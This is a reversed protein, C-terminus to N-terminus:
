LVIVESSQRFESAQQASADAEGGPEPLSSRIRTPLHVSAQQVSADAEGGPEPLSSRIRTPLHVPSVESSHRLENAQLANSEPLYTCFVRQNISSSASEMDRPHRPAVYRTTLFRRVSACMMLIVLIIVLLTVVAALLGTTVRWMQFPDAKGGDGQDDPAGEAGCSQSGLCTTFVSPLSAANVVRSDSAPVSSSGVPHQRSTMVESEASANSPENTSTALAVSAIISNNNSVPQISNLQQNQQQQQQVSGSIM